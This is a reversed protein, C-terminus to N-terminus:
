ICLAKSMLHFLSQCLVDPNKGVAVTIKLKFILFICNLTNLKLMFKQNIFYHRDHLSQLSLVSLQSFMASVRTLSLVEIIM